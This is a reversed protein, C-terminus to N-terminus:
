KDNVADIDAEILLLVAHILCAKEEECTYTQGNITIDRTYVPPKDVIDMPTPESIVWDNEDKLM